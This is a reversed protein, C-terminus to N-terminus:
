ENSGSEDARRFISSGSGSLYHSKQYKKLEGCLQAASKYLDNAELPAFEELIRKSTSQLMKDALAKDFGLYNQRFYRYVAATDCHVKPTELELPPVEDEFREISEGIGRVNAADYGYIFFPVDAGIQQGIHALEKNNLGLNLVTNCLKLFGAADSSGGGLGAGMPINKELKVAYNKFFTDLKEDKTHEKLKLYAKHIINNEIPEGVITFSGTKQPIFEVVDYLKKYLIFRSALEHYSGRLGTIKLFINIKAYCLTKM